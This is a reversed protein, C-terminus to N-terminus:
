EVTVSKALNRPKDVDRGLTVALERAFQQLTVVSELPGWPAVPHDPSGPPVVRVVRAGRAEMEAINAPLKPSRDDVVVVPTAAEILAIPGHKLEGAPYCEAWRYTIEKLKLAGEAAYPLGSGRGVFLFGPAAAFEAAFEAAAAAAAPGAAALRDSVRLLRVALASAASESLRGAAVLGSLSVCVGALVQATFTKTAAVGVELGADCWVAADATRALTSHMVNTIALTPGAARQDLARLVDATEGSQSLAITLTGPEVVDEAAESAVSVQVPIGGVTRLVRGVVLGAHLSTGCALIRVRRLEPLALERWLRGSGIGPALRDVLRAAVEAQEEIEKAMYDPHGNRSADDATWVPRITEPKSHGGYADAWQPADSLEVVDGDRLVQVEEVWGLLASVDSAAFEGQDTHAVVLPSHHAAVVVRNTDQQLVAIAWSGTLQSVTDRVAAPLEAGDATRGEVLHAIVESDVDSAFTHGKSELISRLEAANEIIGNHVVLIRGACDGHPHANSETVGGHTAWRTHGIGVGNLAPGQYDALVKELEDLRGVARFRQMGGGDAAHVGVGSSDYGRYELRRLAPILYDLAASKTRCAVIGCM